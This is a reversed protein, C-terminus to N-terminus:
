SVAVGASAVLSDLMALSIGASAGGDISIAQGSLLPCDGAALFHLLAAVHEAESIRGLPAAARAVAAEVQGGPQARLMPTDVSSPCVCNVRIGRPGYEIAAVQTLAVVAAKSAAYSAYTPFGMSAALSAINIITGGDAMYRPAHKMTLLVSRTNTKIMRDFDAIDVDPLAAEGTIGASNVLIHIPEGAASQALLREISAEDSVDTRVYRGGLEQAFASADTRDALVVRAGAQAFRAATAKGIGSAAGTIVANQGELTFMNM